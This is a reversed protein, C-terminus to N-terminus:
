AQEWPPAVDYRPDDTLTPHEVNSAPSLITSITWMGSEKLLTRVDSYSHGTFSRSYAYGTRATASIHSMGDEGLSVAPLLYHSATEVGMQRHAFNDAKVQWAYALRVYLKVLDFDLAKLRNVERYLQGESNTPIMM